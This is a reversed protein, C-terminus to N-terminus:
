RYTVLVALQNFLNACKVFFDLVVSFSLSLEVTILHLFYLSEDRRYVRFALLTRSAIVKRRRVLGNM